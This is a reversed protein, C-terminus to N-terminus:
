QFICLSRKKADHSWTCPVIDTCSVVGRDIALMKVARTGESLATVTSNVSEDAVVDEGVGLM